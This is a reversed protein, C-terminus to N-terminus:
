GSGGKRGMEDYRRNDGLRLEYCEEPPSTDEGQSILEIVTVCEFGRARLAPIIYRLAAAM